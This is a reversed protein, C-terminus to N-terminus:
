VVRLVYGLWALLGGVAILALAWCSKCSLTTYGIGAGLGGLCIVAVVVATWGSGPMEGAILLPAAAGGFSCLGSALAAILSERLAQQGLRGAVLREHRTLNLQHAMRVLEGRQRAYEAAFFVAATPFGSALGIRIALGTTLADGQGLMKGSALTLATLMGEVFGTIVFFLRERRLLRRWKM